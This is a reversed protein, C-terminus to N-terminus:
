IAKKIITQKALMSVTGFSATKKKEKTKNQNTKSQWLCREKIREQVRFLKRKRSLLYWPQGIHWINTNMLIIRSILFFNPFNTHVPMTNITHSIEAQEYQSPIKRRSNM